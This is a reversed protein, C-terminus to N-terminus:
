KCYKKLLEILEQEGKRKVNADFEGEDALRGKL